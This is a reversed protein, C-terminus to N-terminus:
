TAYRINGAGRLQGWVIFVVIQRSGGGFFSTHSDWSSCVIWAFLQLDTETRAETALVM